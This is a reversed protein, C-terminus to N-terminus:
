VHRWHTRYFRQRWDESMYQRSIWKEAPTLGRTLAIWLWYM